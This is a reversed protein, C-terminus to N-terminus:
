MTSRSTTSMLLPLGARFATLMNSPVVYSFPFRVLNQLQVLNVKGWNCGNLHRNAFAAIHSVDISFMSLRFYTKLANALIIPLLGQLRELFM